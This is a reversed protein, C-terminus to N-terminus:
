AAYRAIETLRFCAHGCATQQPAHDACDRMTPGVPGAHKFVPTRTKSMRPEANDIEGTPCLRHCIGVAGNPDAEIALDEVIDLQAVVQDPSTANEPGRGVGLHDKM